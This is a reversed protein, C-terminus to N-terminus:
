YIWKRPSLLFHDGLAVLGDQFVVTVAAFPLNGAGSSQVHQHRGHAQDYWRGIWEADAHGVLLVCLKDNNRRDPKNAARTPILFVLNSQYFTSNGRHQRFSRDTSRPWGTLRSGATCWRSSDRQRATSDWPCWFCWSGWWWWPLNHILEKSTPRHQRVHGVYPSMASLM